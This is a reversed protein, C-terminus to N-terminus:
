DSDIAPTILLGLLIHLISLFLLKACLTKEPKRLTCFIFVAAINILAAFHHVQDHSSSRANHWTSSSPPTLM